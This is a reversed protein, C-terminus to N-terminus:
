RAVNCIMAEARRAFHPFAFHDLGAPVGRPTALTALIAADIEAPASPNVLRGLQGHRLAERGGDTTSGVTPIGCALAELFVFGFGEGESPMVYTDALRFHDAKEAEDIFGTFVVHGSVGLSAAYAELRPRDDGTGVIVYVLDPHEPLLRALADMVVDFGKYREKGALRGTTMLVRKGRLGYRDLLAPSKEGPGYQDLHIANPLLYPRAHGIPAWAEFRKRTVESISYVADVAGLARTMGRRTLPTWVDIGYVGLVLRAGSFSKLAAALPLLNVHACLIVDPREAAALAARGAYRLLSGASRTDYRVRSPVPELPGVVLRPLAVVVDVAASAGLADLLDRNYQAIGGHGGYADTVLALVRV